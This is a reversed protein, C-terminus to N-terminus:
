RGKTNQPFTESYLPDKYTQYRHAEKPPMGKRFVYVREPELSLVASVPRNIWKSVTSCTKDDRGGMYLYTDCNNIITQSGGQGYMAELQSESQLLLSASIGAARFVSIYKDFGEIKGSCAFDDCIAHVPVELRNEPNSEAEEFLIKFLDAYMINLYALSADDFPSTTIFVVTKRHGPSRFDVAKENKLMEGIKGSFVKNVAGQVMGLITHATKLPVSMTLWLRSAQNGPFLEQARDFLQDVDCTFSVEKGSTKEKIANTLRVVDKISARKGESAANLRVLGTIAAIVNIASADWYPDYSGRRESNESRNYSGYLISKALNLEDTGNRVYDLPDYRYECQDPNAFDLDVVEYGRSRFLEAYENKIRRKALPVILSANFTHLMRSETYSTTKGCGTTGVVMVMDNVGTENFDTSCVIDDALCVKDSM